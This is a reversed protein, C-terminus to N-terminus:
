VCRERMEQTKNYLESIHRLLPPSPDTPPHGQVSEHTGCLRQPFLHEVSSKMLVVVSWPGSGKVPEVKRHELHGKNM